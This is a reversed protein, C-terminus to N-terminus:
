FIDFPGRGYRDRFRKEAGQNGYRRHLTQANEADERAEFFEGAASDEQGRAEWYAIRQMHNSSSRRLAKRLTRGQHEERQHGYAMHGAALYPDGGQALRRAVRAHRLPNRPRNDKTRSVRRKYFDVARGALTPRREQNERIRSM